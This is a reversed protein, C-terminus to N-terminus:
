DFIPIGYRLEHGIAEFGSAFSMALANFQELSTSISRSISFARLTAAVYDQASGLIAAISAIL